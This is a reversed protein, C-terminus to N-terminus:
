AFGGQEQWTAQRGLEETVIQVTNLNNHQMHMYGIALHTAIMGLHGQLQVRDFRSLVYVQTRGPQSLSVINMYYATM